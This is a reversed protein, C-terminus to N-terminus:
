AQAGRVNVFTAILACHIIIRSLVTKAGLYLVGRGLQAM